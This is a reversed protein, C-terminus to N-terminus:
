GAGELWSKLNAAAVGDHPRLNAKLRAEVRGIWGPVTTALEEDCPDKFRDAIKDTWDTQPGSKHDRTEKHDRGIYTARPRPDIEVFEVVGDPQLIRHYM